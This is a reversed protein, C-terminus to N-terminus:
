PSRQNQTKLINQAQRPRNSDAKYINRPLGPQIDLGNITALVGVLVEKLRGSASNCEKVVILIIPEIDEQHIAPPKLAKRLPLLRHAM